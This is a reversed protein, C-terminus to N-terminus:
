IVFVENQFILWDFLAESLKFECYINVISNM